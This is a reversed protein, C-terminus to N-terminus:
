AYLEKEFIAKLRNKLSRQTKAEKLQRRQTALGPVYGCIRKTEPGLWPALRDEYAAFGLWEGIEIKLLAELMADRRSDVAIDELYACTRLIVALEGDNLAKELRPIVVDGFVIYPLPEDGYMSGNAEEQLEPFRHIFESIVTDYTM